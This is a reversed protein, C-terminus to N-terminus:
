CDLLRAFLWDILWDVLWLMDCHSPLSASKSIEPFSVIFSVLTWSIELLSVTLWDILCDSLWDVFWVVLCGFCGVLYGVMGVLGVLVAGCHSPLSASKPMVDWFHHAGREGLEGRICKWKRNRDVWISLRKVRFSGSPASVAFMKTPSIAPSLLGTDQRTRRLVGKAKSPTVSTSQLVRKRNM